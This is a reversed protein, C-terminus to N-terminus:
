SKFLLSPEDRRSGSCPYTSATGARRSGFTRPSKRPRLFTRETPLRKQCSIGKKLFLIMRSGTVYEKPTIYNMSREIALGLPSTKVERSPQSKFSALQPISVLEGPQLDGKWSELVTLRGDIEDGESAVVIHTAHWACHNLGFSPRIGAYIRPTFLLVAVLSSLALNKM